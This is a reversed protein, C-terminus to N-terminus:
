NIAVYTKLIKDAIAQEEIDSLASALTKWTPLAREIVDDNQQLWTVLMQRRYDDVKEREEIKIKELTSYHLGLVVGLSFWQNINRTVLLVEKM